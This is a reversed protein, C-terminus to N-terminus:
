IAFMAIVFFLCIEQRRLFVIDLRELLLMKINHKLVPVSAKDALCLPPTHIINM